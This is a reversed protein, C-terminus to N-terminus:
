WIWRRKTSRTVAVRQLDLLHWGCIARLFQRGDVVDVDLSPVGFCRDGAFVWGDLHWLGYVDQQCVGIRRIVGRHRPRGQRQWRVWGAFGPDAPSRTWIIGGPLHLVTEPFDGAIQEAFRAESILDDSM